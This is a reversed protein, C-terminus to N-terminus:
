NTGKVVGEASVTRMGEEAQETSAVAAIPPAMVSSASSAGVGVRGTELVADIL